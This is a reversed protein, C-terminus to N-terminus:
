PKLLKGINCFLFIVIKQLEAMSWIARRATCDLNSIIGDQLDFCALKLWPNDLCPACPFPLSNFTHFCNQEAAPAPALGLSELAVNAKSLTTDPPGAEGPAITGASFTCWTQSDRPTPTTHPPLEGDGFLRIEVSECIRSYDCITKPTGCQKSYSPVPKDLCERYRVAICYHMVKQPQCGPITCWPDGMAAKIRAERDALLQEISFTADNVMRVDRGYHDIGYGAEVRLSSGSLQVGTVNSADKYQLQGDIGIRFGCVIGWGILERGRLQEHSFFLQEIGTLDDPQVLQGPFFRPFCTQPLPCLGADSEATNECTCQTKSLQGLAMLRQRELAGIAGPSVTMSM